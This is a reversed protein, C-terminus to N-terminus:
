GVEQIDMIMDDEWRHRSRGLARNGDPKGVLARCASTPDMM